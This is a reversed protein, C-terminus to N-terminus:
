CPVSARWVEIPYLNLHIPSEPLTFQGFFYTFGCGARVYFIYFTDESIKQIAIRQMFAEMSEQISPMDPDPMGVSENFLVGSAYLMEYVSIADEKSITSQAFGENMRECFKALTELADKETREGGVERQISIIGPHNRPMIGPNEWQTNRQM